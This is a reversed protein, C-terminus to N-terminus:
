FFSNRLERKLIKGSPNRPLVESFIVVRPKKYSALKGTTFDIIEQESPTDVGPKVVVVATVAEGWKVHPTGIVAVEAFLYGDQDLYGTDGTRLWADEALLAVNDAPRDWYGRTNHPSRTQIEGVQGAALQVGSDVDTIRVEVEGFPKGASRLLHARPGDPDHDEAKLYTTGRATETMGYFQVFECGFVDMSRRLLAPTIPSAGYVIVELAGFDRKEIDPMATLVQLMAPVMCMNTVRESEMLAILEGPDFVAARDDGGGDFTEPPDVHQDVVGADLVV